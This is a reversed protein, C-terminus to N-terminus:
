GPKRALIFHTDRDPIPLVEIGEFGATSLWGRYEEESYTNGSETNVLMNVAFLAAGKSLGRLFDRIAILGGPALSGAVRNILALNEEPGYIHSVSGLYAADFPGEPLGENFDGGIASIGAATLHDKMLEVVEPLDFVTVQAGGEALAEAYTGPGGGVDLIHPNEPLRSLLLEAVARVGPKALRRMSYIFTEKGEPGQEPDDEIPSGTKLIEPMRGWRRILEFRHVVLGGAYDPHSRDLLPGRHEELLRFKNRDEALVGLEALASLLAYVARPNVGLQKAVEDASRSSDAVAELFGEHKACGLVVAEQWGLAGYEMARHLGGRQKHGFTTGSNRMGLEDEATTLSSTQQSTKM